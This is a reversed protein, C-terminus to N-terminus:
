KLAFAFFIPMGPVEQGMVGGSCTAYVMKGDEALSRVELNVTSTAYLAALNINQLLKPGTATMSYLEVEASETGIVFLNNTMVAATNVYPRTLDVAPQAGTGIDTLRYMTVGSGFPGPSTQIVYGRSIRLSNQWAQNNLDLRNPLVAVTQGDLSYATTSRLNEVLISAGPALDSTMGLVVVDSEGIPSHIVMSPTAVMEGQYLSTAFWDGVVALSNVTMGWTVKNVLALTRADVVYINGDTSTAYIRGNVAQVAHIPYGPSLDLKAKVSFGKKSIVWLCGHSGGCYVNQRDFSLSQQQPIHEGPLELTAYISLKPSAPRKAATAANSDVNIFLVTVVLIVLATMKKM